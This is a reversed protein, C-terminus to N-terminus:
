HGPLFAAGRDPPQQDSRRKALPKSQEQLLLLDSIISNSLLFGEATLRWRGGEARLAHGRRQVPQQRPPAHIGDLRHRCKQIGADVAQM